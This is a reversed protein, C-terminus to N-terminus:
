ATVNTTTNKKFVGISNFIGVVTTIVNQVVPWVQDFTVSVNQVVKFANELMAKIVTLKQAGVGEQPLAEEISKVANIILPLLSVVAKVVEIVQNM